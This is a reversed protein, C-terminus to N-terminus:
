KGSGLLMRMATLQQEMSQQRTREEGDFDIMFDKLPRNSQAAMRAIIAARLDARYEGFPELSYYAMWESLERSSM